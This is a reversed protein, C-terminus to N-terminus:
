RVRLRQGPRLISQPSLGNLAALYKISIGYRRSISYLSEGSRVTHYVISRIRELHAFSEASIQLERELLVGNEFDLLSSVDIPEGMFRVEFHLHPGTSYGTSGGLGIPDGAKVLQEKEVLLRSFHGYVTELGNPHAIVCFYGYGGRDYGALRVEGDMAAVVTDGTRLEVDIGFHFQWGRRYGFGSAVRGKVPVVFHFGQMSDELRIRVPAIISRIDKPRCANVWQRDWWVRPLEESLRELGAYLAKGSPSSTARTSDTAWSQIPLLSLLWIFRQM